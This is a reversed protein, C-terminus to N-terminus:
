TVLDVKPRSVLEAHCDFFTLEAACLATGASFPLFRIATVHLNEQQIMPSVVALVEEPIAHFQTLITPSTLSEQESSLISRLRSCRDAATRRTSALPPIKLCSVPM